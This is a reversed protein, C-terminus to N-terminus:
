RLTLSLMEGAEFAFGEALKVNKILTSKLKECLEDFSTISMRYYNFFKENDTRLEEHLTYYAGRLIRAYNIPHVSWRRQRRKRIINKYLLYLVCPDM